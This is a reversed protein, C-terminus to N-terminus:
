KNNSDARINDIWAKMSENCANIWANSNDQWLKIGVIFPNNVDNNPLNSYSRKNENGDFSASEDLHVQKESEINVQTIDDLKVHQTPIIDEEILERTSPDREQLASDVMTPFSSSDPNTNPNNESVTNKINDNISINSPDLQQKEEVHSFVKSTEDPRMDAVKKMESMADDGSSDFIESQLTPSSSTPSPSSAVAENSSFPKEEKQDMAKTKTKKEGGLGISVDINRNNDKNDTQNDYNSNQHDRTAPKIPKYTASPATRKNRRNVINRRRKDNHRKQSM